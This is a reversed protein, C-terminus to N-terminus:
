RRPERPPCRAAGGSIWFIPTTSISGFKLGRTSSIGVRVGTLSGVGDAGVSSGRRSRPPPRPPRPPPPPPPPLPPPGRPSSALRPSRPSRPPRPRRRPRPRPPRSRGGASSRPASSCAAANRAGGGGGGARDGGDGGAAGAASGSTSPSDNQDFTFRPSVPPAHRTRRERRREVRSRSGLDRTPKQAVDEHAAHPAPPDRAADDLGFRVHSRVVRRAVAVPRTTRPAGRPQERRGARRVAVEGAAQVAAQSGDRLGHPKRHGDQDARELGH